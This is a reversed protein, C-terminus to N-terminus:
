MKKSGDAGKNGERGGKKDSMEEAEVFRKGEDEIPDGVKEKEIGSKLKAAQAQFRTEKVGKGITSERTEQSEVREEGKERKTDTRDHGAGGKAGEDGDADENWVEEGNKDNEWVEKGNENGNDNGEENELGQEDAEQKNRREEGGGGGKMLEWVMAKKM